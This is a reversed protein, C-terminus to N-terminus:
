SHCIQRFSAIKSILEEVSNDFKLATKKNWREIIFELIKLYSEEALPSWIVEAQKM